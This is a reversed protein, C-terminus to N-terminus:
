ARRATATSFTQSAKWELVRAIRTLTLTGVFRGDPHVVPVAFLQHEEMAQLVHRLPDNETVWPYRLRMIDFARLHGLAYHPVDLATEREIWGVLYETEDLVPLGPLNRDHLLIQAEHLPSFPRVAPVEDGLLADRVKLGHLLYRRQVSLWEAAGVLMLVFGIVMLILGGGSGFQVLTYLGYLVFIMACVKGVNVAIHTAKVFDMRASLVGRLIRGGDMPFGPLLNFTGLVFNIGGLVIIVDRLSTINVLPSDAAREGTAHATMADGVVHLIPTLDGIAVAIIVVIVANVAPGAIAVLVEQWSKEPMRRIRAMGGIPTLIIDVVSSGFRMAVVAHGCEHLLVTLFLGVFISLHFLAYMPEVLLLPAASLLVLGLFFLLTWHIRIPIGMLHGVRLTWGM